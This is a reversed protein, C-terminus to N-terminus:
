RTRHPEPVFWTSAPPNTVARVCSFKAKKRNLDVSSMRRCLPLSIRSQAVTLEAGILFGWPIGLIRTIRGNWTDVVSRKKFRRLSKAVPKFLRARMCARCTSWFQLAQAVILSCFLILLLPPPTLPPVALTM